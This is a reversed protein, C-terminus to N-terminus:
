RRGWAVFDSNLFKPTKGYTFPAGDLMTVDGGAARVVAHGAATDWECTPGLRPYVDAEGAAILGFKLASGMPTSGAIRYASLFGSTREQDRHSRSVVVTLGEAPAPRAEISQAAEDGRRITATGPGAAAYTLGLAPGHLVGLVPVGAEILGICVCFEGNRGVFERTGDMPDVLWFAGSAIDPITGAAVSEEAIIPVDPTLERLAPLIIAESKHDASTVLSGDAKTSADFGAEYIAMIARGAEEATSVVPALLTRHNESM